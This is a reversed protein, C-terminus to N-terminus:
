IKEQSMRNWYVGPTVYGKKVWDVSRPLNKMDFDDEDDQNSKADIPRRFGNLKKNFDDVSMDSLFNLAM